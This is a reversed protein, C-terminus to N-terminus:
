LDKFIQIATLHFNKYEWELMQAMEPEDERPEKREQGYM